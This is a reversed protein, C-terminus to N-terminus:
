RREGAGEVRVVAPTPNLTVRLNANPNPVLPGAQSTVFSKKWERQEIGFSEMRGPATSILAKLARPPAAQSVPLDPAPAAIVLPIGDDRMPTPNLLDLGTRLADFLTGFLGRSADEKKAEVASAATTASAVTAATAATAAVRAQALPRAAAIATTPPVPTSIVIRGDTVDPGALPAPNLTLASDNLVAWQLDIPIDGAPVDTAIKFVLEFLRAPGSGTVAQVGSVDFTVLGPATQNARYEFGATVGAERASVLSLLAQPYSVALQVSELGAIEDLLVPVAVTAGAAGQVTGISVFPDAGNFVLPSLAPTPFAPISTQSLGVVRGQLRSVDLSNFSGNGSTDGLIAPDLLPYAAFGTDLRVVVRQLRQVDLTNYARNANADGVYANVHVGDDARGSMAGNNIAILTLDLVQKQGYLAAASLPINSILRVLERTTTGTIPAGLDVIVRARGARTLDTSITSGAPVGNGLVLGTVSLLTADYDLSFEVRTAGAANALSIPIGPPVASQSLAQGPGRAIDIISLVAGTGAVNFSRVYDGGAVGNADGDLLAGAGDVFGNARSSLTATYTGASLAAGTRVFYFGGRDADLVMSGQLAGTSGTLVVDAAGFGATATDYLNLRTSDIVRNFRATFGSDTAAFSTVKLTDALVNVSLPAANFTGDGNSAAGHITFTGATTYTHAATTATGSVADARGDGWDIAWQTLPDQGPDTASLSVAYFQGAVAQPPGALILTPAVDAVVVNFSRESFGGDDDTARVTVSETAFGDRATWVFTGDQAIAAGAPANTLTWTITDAAVDTANLRYVVQAGENVNLAPVADIVPAVNAVTVVASDSFTAGTLMDTAARTFVYRGNDAPTFTDGALAAISGDPRTLTYAQLFNHSGPNTFVSGMAVASGENALRDAGADVVRADMTGKVTISVGQDVSGGHGDSITVTFNETVSEGVRLFEAATSALAYTWGVTGGSTAPNEEVAGMTLTGGLLNGPNAAVSTTHLDALDVDDFGITGGTGLMLTTSDEFVTGAAAASQGELSVNLVYDGGNYSAIGGNSFVGGAGGSNNFASIAAYYTGSSAFTYQLYPDYPQVSGAGGVGSGGDDNSALLNGASDYLWLMSDVDVGAGYGYDIDFTATEGATFTFAYVDVDDAGGSDPGIVGNISVRPLSADGVDASPGIGFQTRAIVQASALTNNNASEGIITPTVSFAAETVITPADNAGVVTIAVQQDLTGGQGDSITVTFREIVIEGAQLQDVVANPVAYTWGLTGDATVANETVEGLTLTGGLRNAANTAM